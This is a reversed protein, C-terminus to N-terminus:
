TVASVIESTLFLLGILGALFLALVGLLRVWDTGRRDKSLSISEYTARRAIFYVLRWGGPDGNVDPVTLVRWLRPRYDELLEPELVNENGLLNLRAASAVLSWDVQMPQEATDPPVEMAVISQSFSEDAREWSPSMPVEPTEEVSAGDPGVTMREGGSRVTVRLANEGDRRLGRAGEAFVSENHCDEVRIGVPKFQYVHFRRVDRWIDRFSERSSVARRLVIGAIAQDPSPALRLEAFPYGNTQPPAALGRVPGTYDDVRTGPPLAEYTGHVCAKIQPPDGARPGIFNSSEKM